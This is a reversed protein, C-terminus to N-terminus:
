KSIRLMRQDIVRMWFHTRLILFTRATWVMGPTMDCVQFLVVADFDPVVAFDQGDLTRVEDYPTGNADVSIDL